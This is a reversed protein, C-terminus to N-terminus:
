LVPLKFSELTHTFSDPAERNVTFGTTEGVPVAAELLVSSTQCSLKRVQRHLICSPAIIWNLM